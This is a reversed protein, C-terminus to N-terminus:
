VDLTQKKTITKIEQACTTPTNLNKKGGPAEATNLYFLNSRKPNKNQHWNDRKEEWDPLQLDQEEKHEVILFM